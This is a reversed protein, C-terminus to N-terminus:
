RRAKYKSFLNLNTIDSIEGNVKNTRHSDQKRMAKNGLRKEKIKFVKILSCQFMYLLLSFLIIFKWM